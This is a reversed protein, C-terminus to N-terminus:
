VIPTNTKNETPERKKSDLEDNGDVPKDDRTAEFQIADPMDSGTPMSSTLAPEDESSSGDDALTHLNPATSAPQIPAVFMDQLQRMDGVSSVPPWEPHRELQQKVIEHHTSSTKNMTKVSEQSKDPKVEQEVMKPQPQGTWSSSTTRARDRSNGKVEETPFFKMKLYNFLDNTWQAEVVASEITLCILFNLVSVGLMFARFEISPPLMVQLGLELFTPPYMVIVGNLIIVVLLNLCFIWNTFILKRYPPGKSLVIAMSAYQFASICFVAYNEFCYFDRDDISSKKLVLYWPQDQVFLFAFVQFSLNILLYVTLSIIAKPALLSSPPQQPVLNPYAETLTFTFGLTTLVFLDIYLFEYDSLNAGIYYLLCTSIFQILSYSVMFRFVGFSTVLAARGERIITPVCEINPNKSTFPSAVSAEAESLSIGAHATKLAGCDNAGDGCMAVFYGLDQLEEILQQKQTPTFRAFITGLVVLRPILDPFHDQVVAWTKGTMAFHVNPSDSGM